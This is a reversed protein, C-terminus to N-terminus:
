RDGAEAVGLHPQDGADAPQQGLAHEGGEAVARDGGVARPLVVELEHGEVQDVGDDAGVAGFRRGVGQAARVAGHSRLEEFSQLNLRMGFWRSRMLNVSSSSCANRSVSRTRLMAVNLWSSVMWRTAM